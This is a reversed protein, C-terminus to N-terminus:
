FRSRFVRNRGNCGFLLCSNCRNSTYRDLVWLAISSLFPLQIHANHHTQEVRTNSCLHHSNLRLNNNNNNNNQTTPQLPHLVSEYDAANRVTNRPYLQIIDNSSIVEWWPIFNMSQATKKQPTGNLFYRICQGVIRIVLLNLHLSSM